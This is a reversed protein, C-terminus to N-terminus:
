DLLAESEFNNLFANVIFRVKRAEVMNAGMLTETRVVEQIFFNILSIIYSSYSQIEFSNLFSVM